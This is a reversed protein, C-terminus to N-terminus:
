PSPRAQILGRRTRDSRFGTLVQSSFDSFCIQMVPLRVTVCKENKKLPSARVAIPRQQKNSTESSARAQSILLHAHVIQYRVAHSIDIVQLPLRRAATIPHARTAAPTCGRERRERASRGGDRGQAGGVVGANCPLAQTQQATRSPTVFHTKSSPFWTQM